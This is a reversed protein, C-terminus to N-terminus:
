IEGCKTECKAEDGGEVGKTKPSFRFSLNSTKGLAQSLGDMQVKLSADISGLPTKLVCDYGSLHSDEQILIDDLIDAKKATKRALASNEPAVCLTIKINRGYERIAKSMLGEMLQDKDMAGIIKAMITKILAIMEGEIGRTFAIAKRTFDIHKKILDEQAEKLGQQYGKEKAESYLRKATQERQAIQDQTGHALKKADLWIQYDQARLIKQGVIGIHEKTIKSIRM